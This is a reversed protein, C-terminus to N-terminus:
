EFNITTHVTAYLFDRDPQSGRYTTRWDYFEIQVPLTGAEGMTMLLDLRRATSLPGAPPSFPVGPKVSFPESFQGKCAESGLPRGDMAIVEMKWNRRFEDEPRGITYQKLTYGANLVRILVEDDVQANVAVEPFDFDTPTRPLGSSRRMAEAGGEEKKREEKKEEEKTGSGPVRGAGVQGKVGAVFFIDPFFENLFGDQTFSRPDVPDDRDCDQMFDDHDLESWRTDVEGAAWWQEVGYPIVNNQKRVFGPGGDPYPPGPGEGNAPKPPDILLLGYLGRQFHLVTNKHCHYFYTGACSARWQYTFEGDSEWSTHGLGDNGTTPEIGHWHITHAGGHNKVEAHIVEGEVVRIRKSPFVRREKDSDPAEIIWMEVESGDPLKLDHDRLLRRRLERIVPRGGSPSKDDEGIKVFSAGGADVPDLPGGEREPPCVHKFFAAKEGEEVPRLRVTRLAM